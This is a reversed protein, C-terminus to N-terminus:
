KLFKMRITKTKYLELLEMNLDLFTHGWKFKNLLEAAKSQFGLIFLSGAIAEATTLKGLKAYNVPNGALLLPLRRNIRKKLINFKKITEDFYNWSCDIACLSKAISNDTKSLAIKSLPNLVITGEPIFRISQILNFKVLKAAPVNLQIM